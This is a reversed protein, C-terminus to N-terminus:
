ARAHDIMDLIDLIVEHRSYIMFRMGCLVLFHRDDDWSWLLACCISSALLALAGKWGGRSIM